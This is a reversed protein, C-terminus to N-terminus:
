IGPYLGLFILVFAAMDYVGHTIIPLWLNRRAGLYLGGFILGAKIATVVGILGQWLHIVGFLASMVVVAVGWAIKGGGLLEALRNLICGRYAMEEGFAALVWAILIVSLLLLVVNGKLAAFQSLDPKAGLWRSLLPEIFYLDSFLLLLGLVIGALVTLILNRPLSLGVDRWTAGRLRLSLWGLIVLSPTSILSSPILLIILVLILLEAAIFLKRQRLLAGFSQVQKLSAIRRLM